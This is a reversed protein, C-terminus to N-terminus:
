TIGARQRMRAMSHIGRIPVVNLFANLGTLTTTTEGNIQFTTNNWGENLTLAATAATTSTAGSNLSQILTLSGTADLQVVLEVVDGIAPGSALTATVSSTGNHHVAQYVGNGDAEVYLRPTTNGGLNWLRTTASLLVTGQEIFRVYWTSDQPRSAVVWSLADRSRTASGSATPIYSSVTM